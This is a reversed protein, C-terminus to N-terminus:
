KSKSGLARNMNGTKYGGLDLATYSFGLQSFYGTIERRLSEDLLLPIDEQPLEIRALSGHVRVRYQRFGLDSLKQEARDVMDLLGATIKDGYPIRSALCAFSPKDWTPLGCAKSLERIDSKTLGAEKLPSRIGLETVAKLGPRYDSMDDLNSGEAICSIGNDAAAKAIVSFIAKKCYYCRDPPNDAFGRVSLQDFGCIMQKIGYRKCFAESEGLERKPFSPANVTVALAGGGLVEHAKYALYSSDVGASFAVAASGLERLIDELRREKERLAEPVM